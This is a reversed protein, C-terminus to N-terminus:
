AVMFKQPSQGIHLLFPRDVDRWPYSCDALLPRKSIGNITRMRDDTRKM